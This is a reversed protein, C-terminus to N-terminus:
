LIVGTSTFVLDFHFNCAFWLMGTILILRGFGPLVRVDFGDCFREVMSSCAHVRTFFADVFLRSFASSRLSNSCVRRGEANAAASDRSKTM